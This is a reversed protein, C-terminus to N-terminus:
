INILQLVKKKYEPKMYDVKFGLRAMWDPDLKNHKLGLKLAFLEIKSSAKWRLKPIKVVKVTKGHKKIVPIEDLELGCNKCYVGDSERIKENSGCDPCVM